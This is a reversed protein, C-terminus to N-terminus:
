ASARVDRAAKDLRLGLFRAHRLIGDNTREGYAIEAVLSPSLWCAERAVIAPVAAFPSTLRALRRLRGGIRTLSEGDFGAGVRGRYCLRGAVYEGLLLSAFPRGSAASPRYGGIVFEARGGCKTKIWGPGRGSRYPLDASKSVIGELGLRCAERHVALGDGRQHDAYRLAPGANRLLSRLRRKRETLPLGRLDEGDLRLVDFAMMVIDGSRGRIANQLLGFRSVGDADLVVLEGDILAEDADLTAAAERMSPFKASWDLGSRTYVRHKRGGVALLARYGDFKLEHLWREGSPPVDELTALQPRVFAPPRKSASRRPPTRQTAPHGTPAHRVSARAIDDMARGSAVSRQWRQVADTRRGDAWEDREKILLWNERRAAGRSARSDAMRVLAFGGRLREGRLIFKLAGHELGEHPDAQPEWRGRDWLMVTGGGYEGAPIVGEFGGYELPHDETRVALRKNAPDLSPGRTVAWSKLVGDMELRFDFHLRRAAHKQVVFSLEPVESVRRGGQPEPTRAFDRRQRYRDLRGDRAARSAM